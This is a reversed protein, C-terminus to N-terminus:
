RRARGRRLLVPPLVPAAALLLECFQPQLRCLHIIHRPSVIFPKEIPRDIPIAINRGAHLMTCSVSLPTPHTCAALACYNTQKEPEQVLVLVRAEVESPVAKM